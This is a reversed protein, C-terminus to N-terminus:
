WPQRLNLFSEPLTHLEVTAPEPPYPHPELGTDLTLEPTLGGNKLRPWGDETWVVEALATERGLVCRGSNRIPRGCLCSVFWRGQPTEVLSTHGARQLPWDPDFRSTIFM